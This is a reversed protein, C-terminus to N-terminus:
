GIIVSENLQSSRYASKVIEMANIPAEDNFVQAKNKLALIEHKFEVWENTFSIDTPNYTIISKKFPAKFDKKLYEVSHGGYSPGLGLVKIYGDELNIHFEFNNIWETFSTNLTCIIKSACKGIFFANDEIPPTNFYLNETVCYVSEIDLGFFHFLDIAHVGQEILQGGMTKKPNARWEKEFQERGCIGYNCRISLIKGLGLEDVLRKAQIIGPYHRHNFGCKLLVGKENAKKILEKAEAVTRTLPKECLIHRGLNIEELCSQFHMDTTGCVVIADVDQRSLLDKETGHTEISNKQALHRAREKDSSAIFVIEDEGVQQISRIRKLAQVGTGIIAINM